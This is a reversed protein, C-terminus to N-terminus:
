DAWPVQWICGQNRSAGGSAHESLDGRTFSELTHLQANTHSESRCCDSERQLVATPVQLCRSLSVKPPLTARTSVNGQCMSNGRPLHARGGASLVVSCGARIPM